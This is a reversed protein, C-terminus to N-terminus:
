SSTARHSAQRRLAYALVAVVLPADQVVGTEVGALLEDFPVWDVTMEAEEHVLEFDGRDATALGRALYIHQIEGLIGPSPYVSLLHTWQNATYGTEELLEREACVQPDEGPVDLLGAPLEVLRRGVAHRYQLVVLVREDDDVALVVSAGPHEILLRRFPEGGEPSTLTDERVAFPAGVPRWVDDAALIPWSAATDM